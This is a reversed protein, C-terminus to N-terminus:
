PLAFLFYSYFPTYAPLLPKIPQFHPKQFLIKLLLPSLSLSPLPPSPSFSHPVKLPFARVRWFDLHALSPGLSTPLWARFCSFNWDSLVSGLLCMQHLPAHGFFAGLFHVTLTKPKHRGLSLLVSSPIHSEDQWYMHWTSLNKWKSFFQPLQEFKNSKVATYSSLTASSISTLPFTLSSLVVSAYPSSFCVVRM